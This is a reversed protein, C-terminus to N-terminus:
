GGPASGVPDADAFEARAEELCAWAYPVLSRAVHVHFVGAAIRWLVVEAKGLLTRACMGVPFAQVDLDLACFANLCWAAREGSIELVRSRQSVDVVSAPYGGAARRAQAVLGTAGEPAQILWEDPGLWLAARERAIVSRCPATPLLVGIAMGIATAAGMGARVSLLRAPALVALRASRVPRAVLAVPAVAPLLPLSVMRALPEEARTDYFRPKTVTVETSRWPVAAHLRGGIRSRGGAVLALAFGRGLAVSRYSATVHGVSVTQGPETLQVGEELVVSPDAPLLGVLQKRDTRVLDALSLSRKGVFDDKSWAITEGLGLDDATVTGDTEQGIVGSGAEAWLVRKAAAGCATVGTQQRLTDWVAQAGDPPLNVEFGMEGMFGGRFLRIPSDGIHGERAEGHQMADLAIDEIFPALVEASRPGQVAIVAWQETVATVWARLDAFAGQLYDEMHHLVFAAGGATTTVHFREADLRAVIGDDRIFGDEGLLLGYRWRGVELDAVSSAYIRDLFIGADPGCVEIKGQASADFM